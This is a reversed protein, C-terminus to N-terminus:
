NVHSGHKELFADVERAIKEAIEDRSYPEFANEDACPIVCWGCKESVYSAPVANKLIIRM